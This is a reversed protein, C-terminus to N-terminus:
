QLRQAMQSCYTEQLGLPSPCFAETNTPILPSEQCHWLGMIELYTPVPPCLSCKSVRNHYCSGTSTSFPTPGFSLSQMRALTNKVGVGGAPSLLHRVQLIFLQKIDSLTMREGQQHKQAWRTKNANGREIWLSVPAQSCTASYWLQSISPRLCRHKTKPGRILRYEEVQRESSQKPQGWVSGPNVTTRPLQSHPSILRTMKGQDFAQQYQEKLPTITHGQFM